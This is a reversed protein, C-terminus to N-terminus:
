SRLVFYYKCVMFSLFSLEIIGSIYKINKFLKKIDNTSNYFEPLTSITQSTLLYIVNLLNKHLPVLLVHEILENFNLTNYQNSIKQKNEIEINEIIIKCKNKDIVLYKIGGDVYIM